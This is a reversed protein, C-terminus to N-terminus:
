VIFNINVLLCSTTLLLLWVDRLHTTSILLINGSIFFLVALKTAIERQNSLRVPLCILIISSTISAATINSLIGIYIKKEFGILEFSKYIFSYLEVAGILYKKSIEKKLLLAIYFFGADGNIQSSDGLIHLYFSSVCSIFLLFCFTLEFVHVKFNCPPTLYYVAGRGILYFSIAAALFEAQGAIITNILAGSFFM